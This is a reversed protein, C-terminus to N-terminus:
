SYDKNLYEVFIRLGSNLAFRCFTPSYSSAMRYFIRTLSLRTYITMNINMKMINIQQMVATTHCLSCMKDIFQSQSLDFCSNDEAKLNKEKEWKIKFMHIVSHSTELVIKVKTRRLLFALSLLQLKRWSARLTLIIKM